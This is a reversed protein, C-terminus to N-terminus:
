KPYKEFMKDLHRRQSCNRFEEVTVLKNAWLIDGTTGDVLAVYISAGREPEPEVYSMAAASLLVAMFVDKKREGSSKEFGDLEAFFLADAGALDAFQNVDPGLSREYKLAKSKWMFDKKYMEKLAQDFGEKIKTTEFRLDPDEEFAKEDLGSEKVTFGQEALAKEIVGPFCAEIAKEDERLRENDGKFALELIKVEPPIVAVSKIAARRKLFDPDQRVTTFCGSALPALVLAAMLIRRYSGSPSM